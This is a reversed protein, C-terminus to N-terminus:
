RKATKRRSVVIAGFSLIALVAFMATIDGSSPAAPTTAPANDGGAPANDGGAPANDGGAPTNDDGAPTNDGGAPADDGTSATSSSLVGYVEWEDVTTRGTNNGDPNSVEIYLRIYRVGKAIQEGTFTKETINDENDKVHDLTIWDENKDMALPSWNAPGEAESEYEVDFPYDAFNIKSPDKPVQIMFESNISLNRLEGGHWIKYGTIDYLDGV